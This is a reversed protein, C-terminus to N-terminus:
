LLPKEAAIVAADEHTVGMMGGPILRM